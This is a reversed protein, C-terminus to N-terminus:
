WFGLSQSEFEIRERTEWSEQVLFSFLWCSGYAGMLEWKGTWVGTGYVLCSEATNQAICLHLPLGFHAFFNQLWRAFFYRGIEGVNECLGRWLVCIQHAQLPESKGWSESRWTAPICSRFQKRESREAYFQYSNIYDSDTITMNTHWRPVARALM